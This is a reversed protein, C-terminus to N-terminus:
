ESVGQVSCTVTGSSGLRGWRRVSSTRIRVREVSMIDTSDDTRMIGVDFTGGDALTDAFTSSNALTDYLNLRGMVNAYGKAFGLGGALLSSGRDLKVVPTMLKAGYAPLLASSIIDPFTYSSAGSQNSTLGTKNDTTGTAAISFTSPMEVYFKPSGFASVVYAVFSAGHVRRAEYVMRELVRLASTRPRPTVTAVVSGVTVTLTGTWGDTVKALLSYYNNAM